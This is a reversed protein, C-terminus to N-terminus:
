PSAKLHERWAAPLQDMQLLAVASRDGADAEQMRDSLEALDIEPLGDHISLDALADPAIPDVTLFAAVPPCSTIRLRSPMRREQEDDVILDDFAANLYVFRHPEVRLLVAPADDDFGAVSWAADADIEMVDYVGRDLATRVDNAIIRRFGRYAMANLVRWAGIALLTAGVLVLLLALLVIPGSARAV